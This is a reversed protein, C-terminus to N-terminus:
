LTYASFTVHKEADNNGQTDANDTSPSNPRSSPATADQNPVRQRVQYRSTLQLWCSKLIYGIFGLVIITCLIILSTLHWFSKQERSHSIRNASLFSNVDLMRRASAAQSRVDDLQTVQAPVAEELTRLEHNAIIAVRDPTYMRLAEPATHTNGRMQPLTQFQETTLLCDSLNYILGNDHLLKTTSIWTGNKWCRLTVLQSKPFHYIWTSDRRNLQAESFLIYNRQVNDV